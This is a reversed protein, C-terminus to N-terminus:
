ELVTLRVSVGRMRSVAWYLGPRARQDRDRLDWVLAPGEARLGHGVTAVRRGTVDFVVADAGLGELRVPGRAPNPWVRPRLKVESMPVDTSGVLLTALFKPPDLPTTNGGRDVAEVRWWTPLSPRAPTSGIWPDDSLFTVPNHFLSDESLTVRYRVRDGPEDDPAPTWEIRTTGSPPPPALQFQGPARKFVRGYFSRAQAIAARVTCPLPGPLGVPVLWAMTEILSSPAPMSSVVRLRIKSGKKV